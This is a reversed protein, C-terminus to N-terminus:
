RASPDSAQSQRVSGSHSPGPCTGTPNVTAQGKGSIKVCIAFQRISRDGAGAQGLCCRLRTWTKPRELECNRPSADGDDAFAGHSFFAIMECGGARERRDVRDPIDQQGTIPRQQDM